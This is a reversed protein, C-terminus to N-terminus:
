LFLRCADFHLVPKIDLLEANQGCQKNFHKTQDTFFLYTHTEDLAKVLQDKFHLHLM